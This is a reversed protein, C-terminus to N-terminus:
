LNIFKDLAFSYIVKESVEMGTIREITKAYLDLQVHYRNVLTKMSYVRDTKYDMVIIKGDEIFYGDIVGQVIRKEDDTGKYKALIEAPILGIYFQREKYLEGRTDAQAMRKGLDSAIMAYVKQASIYPKFREEIYGKLFFSDLQAQVDEESQSQFNILEMVKHVASGIENAAPDRDQRSAGLTPITLTASTDAAQAAPEASVDADQSEPEASVDEDQAAPEASTDTNESATAGGDTLEHYKTTFAEGDGEVDEMAMRKVETVSLKAKLNCDSKHKYQFSLKAAIDEESPALADQTEDESEIAVAAQVDTAPVHVNDVGQSEFFEEMTFSNDLYVSALSNTYQLMIEQGSRKYLEYAMMVLDIYRKANKRKTYSIQDDTFTDDSHDFGKLNEKLLDFAEEKNEFQGEGAIKTEKDETSATLILKDRSRTLAVYLLRLEEAINNKNMLSEMAIRIFPTKKARFEENFLFACLYNDPDAVVYRSEENREGEFLNKNKLEAGLRAVFVVPWELGKSKHITTLKVSSGGDDLVKAESFDDKNTKIKDMYRLFNFLGSFSTDEYKKARTILMDLNAQRRAGSPMASVFWYFGTKTFIYNIIDPISMYQKNEKLYTLLELFRSINDNRYNAEYWQLKEYLSVNRYEKGLQAKLAQKHAVAVQAMQLEDVNALPSRLVAALEVDQYANDVIALMSLMVSIEMADFFGSKGDVTLPVGEALFADEYVPGQTVLNRLLIAFDGYTVPRTVGPEEEIYFPTPGEVMDRIRKAICRAEVSDHHDELNNNIIMIEANVPYQVTRGAKLEADKDYEIGGLDERMLPRMLTNVTDIVASSSRFNHALDIKTGLTPDDRYANYKNTFLDPRAQRFSYISQKVDGVMFMDVKGDHNAVATLIAEQLFSSDQYEDVIVEKYRSAIQKAIATPIGQGNEDVGECLIRYAFEAIDRFEYRNKKRKVDTLVEIYKRTIDLLVFINSSMDAIEQCIEVPTLVDNVAKSFGEKYKKRAVDKLRNYLEKNPIDRNDDKTNKLKKLNEFKIGEQAIKKIDAVTKVNAFSDILDKDKELTSITNVFAEADQAELKQIWNAIEASYDEVRVLLEWVYEQHWKLDKIKDLAIDEANPSNFEAVTMLSKRLEEEAQGIWKLPEPDNSAVNYINDVSEKIKEDSIKKSFVNVLNKFEASNQEYFGEIITDFVDNKILKMEIEDAIDLSSDIGAINFYDKVISLCFSDITMINARSILALQKALHENGPDEKVAKELRKGIKEKMQAAADKTFTVILLQDIDVPEYVLNGDADKGLVRDVVRESLTATKGAGAGAAVLIIGSRTDIVKKQENTWQM